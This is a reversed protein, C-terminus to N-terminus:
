ELEGTALAPTEAAAEADSDATDTSDVELDDREGVYETQLPAADIGQEQLWRVMATTRGHTALVRMAETSRIAEMLGPWDAHDSLVFGRDVSRRRRNGRIRMWGSAFATSTMGFKRLWPSALASPPAVILAGAWDRNDNGVGAYVTPPLSVGSKRYNDNVREVAGHCYIPAISPDIGALIRQAKGLAYAFVVSVQGQDRNTQWWSNLSDFVEAQPRWRYVPLGFTCETIFTHCRVPEFATCTNDPTVKYDGSVVWVEGNHEVRIQASGLIHGAPHLSISVGRCSVAEGYEVSDVVASAGM